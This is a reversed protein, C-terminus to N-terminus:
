ENNTEVCVCKQYEGSEVWYGGPMVNDGTEKILVPVEREGDCHPCKEEQEM